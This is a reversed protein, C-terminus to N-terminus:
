ATRKWASCGRGTRRMRMIDTADPYNTASVIRNAEDYVLTAGAGSIMNGNADYGANQLRNTAGNVPISTPVGRVADNGDVGGAGREGLADVGGLGAAEFCRVSIHHEAREM